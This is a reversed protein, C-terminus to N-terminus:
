SGGSTARSRRWRAFRILVTLLLALSAALAVGSWVLRDTRRLTSTASLEVAERELVSPRWVAGNSARTPANSEVDGPMRVAVQFGLLEDVARGLREEVLEAPEVGLAEALEPDDTLGAVGATFDVTGEFHYDTEAFADTRLLSFERLPGGEGAVQEILPGVQEPDDFPRRVRVWTFGDDEEAPETVEWGADVLDPFALSDLLDPHEEVGEEDLGIGVEVSGSGDDEVAINVETRLQCSALLAGALGLVLARVAARTRRRSAVGM